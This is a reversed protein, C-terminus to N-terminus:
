MNYTWLDIMSIQVAMMMSQNVEEDNSVSRLRIIHIEPCM